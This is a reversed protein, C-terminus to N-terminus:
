VWSAGLDKNRPDALYKLQWTGFMWHPTWGTIVVWNKHKIANDLAATMTADSGEVLTFGKFDYERIAKETKTM